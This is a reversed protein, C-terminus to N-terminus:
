KQCKPCFYAQGGGVSLKEISTGCLPCRQEKMKPGMTPSYSGQHGYLDSFDDKGGHKIREWLVLKIADYLARKEDKNLESARRKPHIKARYAIDQFASNGLGVVVAEKGVLVSKLAMHKEDLLESFREFTFQKEDMPSLVESFDRRYVYSQKLEDDRMVHIVGMGTLRVTLVTNDAFDIKLHFKTPVTRESKHYLIMGGYEPALILNVGNNLKLRIVNGRSKVAEIKGNVLQNFSKTDKNIFGLKQLSTCDQLFYSKICKGLLEKNMQEALIHAEPLEISM